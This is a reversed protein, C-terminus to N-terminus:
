ALRRRRAQALRSQRTNALSLVTPRPQLKFAAGYTYSGMPIVRRADLAAAQGSSYFPDLALLNKAETASLTLTGQTGEYVIPQGNSGALGDDSYQFSCGNLGYWSSGNACADLEGVEADAYAAVAGYMQYLDQQAGLTWVAFQPHILLYFTDDWFPEIEYPNPVQVTTSCSTQQACTTGSGPVLNNDAPIQQQLSFTISSSGSTNGNYTNGFTETTKEDWTDSSTLNAGLFFSMKMSFNTSKQEEFMTENVISNSNGLSLQTGYTNSAQFSATSMNGPPQYLITYPVANIQFMAAPSIVVTFPQSTQTASRCSAINTQPDQQRLTVAMRFTNAFSTEGFLGGPVPLSIDGETTKGSGISALTLNAVSGIRTWSGQSNDWNTCNNGTTGETGINVKCQDLEATFNGQTGVVTTLPPPQQVPATNSIDQFYTTIHFTPNLTNLFLTPPPQLNITYGVTNQWFLTGNSPGQCFIDNPNQPYPGEVTMNAIPVTVTATSPLAGGRFVVSPPVVVSVPLIAGSVLDSGPPVVTAITGNSLESTPSLPVSTSGFLATTAGGLPEDGQITVPVGAGQILSPAVSVIKTPFPVKVKVPPPGLLNLAPKTEQAGTASALASSLVIAAILIMIDKHAVHVSVPM